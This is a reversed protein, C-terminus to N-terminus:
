DIHETAPTSMYTSIRAHLDVINQWQAASISIRANSPSETPSNPTTRVTAILHRLRLHLYQLFAEMQAAQQPPLDTPPVQPPLLRLSLLDSAGLNNFIEKALLQSSKTWNSTNASMTRNMFESEDGEIGM